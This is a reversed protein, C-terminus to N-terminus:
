IIRQLWNEKRYHYFGYVNAFVNSLLMSIWIGSSGLSTLRGFLLIMPIRTLWLRYVSMKMSYETHGTGQFFGHFISFSGMMPIILLSYYIYELADPMIRGADKANIFLLILQKSFVFLLISGALNFLLSIRQASKFCDRVRDVKGAGMNQGIISAIAAGIGMSPQILLSTIRNVLGYAALTATGYSSIFMNLVIFGLSTGSQGVISPIGIRVLKKLKTIDPTMSAKSFRIETSKRWLFFGGILAASYQSLITALAAGSVGLGFGPLGIGPIESFIFIPDLIMNLLASIGSIITFSKTDGQAQLIAQMVFALAVAPYGLFTVSLYAVSFVSLDDRAGMANVILPTTTYGIVSVIAALVLGILLLQNAYSEAEKMRRSGILQSMVSTGAVSIGSGFTIFFFIVPWVFTTAAFEGAGLRGLWLADVLNYVTQIFNNIMLPLSLTLIAKRMSGELILIRKDEM